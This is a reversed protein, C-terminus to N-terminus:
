FLKKSSHKISPGNNLKKLSPIATKNTKTLAKKTATSNEKTRILLVRRSSNDLMPLLFASKSNFTKAEKSSYNLAVCSPIVIDAKAKPQIPSGATADIKDGNNFLYTVKMGGKKM